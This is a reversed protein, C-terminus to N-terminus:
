PSDKPLLALEDLAPWAGEVRRLAGNEEIVLVRAQGQLRTAAAAIRDERGDKETLSLHVEEGERSPRRPRTLLKGTRLSSAWHVRSVDDFPQMEELEGALYEWEGRDPASLAEAGEMMRPWVLRSGAGGFFRIKRAFGFPFSTAVALSDWHHRGREGMVAGAAIRREDGPLVAPVFAHAVFRGEVWEGLELCYLPFWGPNKVLWVDGTTRGVMAQGCGRRVEARAVVLESLVGSFILSSLLLSELLYIINNGSNIAVVGFLITFAVFWKGGASIELRRRKTQLLWGFWRM